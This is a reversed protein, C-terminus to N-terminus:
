ALAEAFLKHNSQNVKSNQREPSCYVLSRTNGKFERLIQAILEANREIVQNSTDLSIVKFLVEKNEDTDIDIQVIGKNVYSDFMKMKRRGEQTLYFTEAKYYFYIMETLGNFWEGNLFDNDERGFASTFVKGVEKQEVTPELENTFRKSMITGKRKQVTRKDKLESM